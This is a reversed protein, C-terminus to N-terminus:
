KQLFFQSKLYKLGQIQAYKFHRGLHLPTHHTFFYEEKRKKEKERLTLTHTQKEDLFCLVIIISKKHFQGWM